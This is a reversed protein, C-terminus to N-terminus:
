RREKPITIMVRGRPYCGNGVSFIAEPTVHTANKQHTHLSARSLDVKQEERTFNLNKSISSPFSLYSNGYCTRAKLHGVLWHSLHFDLVVSLIMPTYSSTTNNEKHTIKIRWCVVASELWCIRHLTILSHKQHKAALMFREREVLIYLITSWGNFYYSDSFQGHTQALSELTICHSWQPWCLLEASLFIGIFRM